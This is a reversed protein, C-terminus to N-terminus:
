AKCESTSTRRGAQAWALLDERAYLIRRRGLRYFRPGDGSVRYRELTRASIRLLAAAEKQTVFVIPIATFPPQEAEGDCRQKGTMRGDKGGLRM